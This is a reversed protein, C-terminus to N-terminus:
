IQAQHLLRCAKYLRQDGQNQKVHSQRGFGQFQRLQRGGSGSEDPAASTDSGASDPAGTEDTGSAASVGSSAPASGSAEESRCATFSAALMVALLAACARKVFLSNMIDRTEGGYPYDATAEPPKYLPRKIFLAHCSTDDQGHSLAM